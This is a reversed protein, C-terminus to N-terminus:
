FDCCRAFTRADYASGGSNWYLCHWGNSTPLSAMVQRSSAGIGEYTCGGGTMTYGGPCTAIAGRDDNAPVSFSVTQTICTPAPHTHSASAVGTVENASHNHSSEAFQTKAGEDLDLAVEAEGCLQSFISFPATGLRVRPLMEVGESAIEIGLYMSPIGDFSQPPLPEEDGLYAVFRGEEFSVAVSAEYFATGGTPDNYLRFTVLRDGDVLGGEM